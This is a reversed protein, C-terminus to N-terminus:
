LLLQKFCGLAGSSSGSCQHKSCVEPGLRANVCWRAGGPKLGRDDRAIADHVMPRLTIGELGNGLGSGARISLNGITM